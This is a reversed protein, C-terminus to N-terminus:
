RASATLIALHFKRAFSLDYWSVGIFFAVVVFISNTNHLKNYLTLSPRDAESPTLM